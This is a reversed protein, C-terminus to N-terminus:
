YVALCPRLPSRLGVAEERPRRSPEGQENGTMHGGGALKKKSTIKRDDV